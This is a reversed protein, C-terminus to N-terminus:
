QLVKTPKILGYLCVLLVSIVFGTSIYFSLFHSPNLNKLTWYYFLDSFNFLIGNLKPTDFFITLAVKFFYLLLNKKGFLTLYGFIKKFGKLADIFKTYISQILRPLKRELM